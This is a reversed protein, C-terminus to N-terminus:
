ILSLGCTFYHCIRTSTGKHCLYRPLTPLTQGATGFPCNQCMCHLYCKTHVCSLIWGAVTHLTPTFSDWSLLTVSCCCRWFVASQVAATGQAGPRSNISQQATWHSCLAARPQAWSCWDLSTCLALHWGHIVEQKPLLAPCVGQSVPSFDRSLCTLFLVVTFTSYLFFPLLFPHPFSQFIFAQKEPFFHLIFIICKM